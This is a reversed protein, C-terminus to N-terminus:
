TVLLFHPRFFRIALIPRRNKTLLWYFGSYFFKPDGDLQSVMSSTAM